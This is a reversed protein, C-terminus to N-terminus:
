QNDYVVAEAMDAPEGLASEILYSEATVPEISSTSHFNVFFTIAALVGSVVVAAALYLRKHVVSQRRKEKPAFPLIQIKSQIQPWIDFNDPIEPRYLDRLTEGTQSILSLDDRCDSCELLHSTVARHRPATVERDYFASLEDGILVCDEDLRDKLKSWIDLEVEQPLELGRSLLGNVQSLNQFKDLCPQCKAMHESVGEKAPVVLEGDLYASLDEQVCECVSPVKDAILSWIDPAGALSSSKAEMFFKSISGFESRAKQCEGCAELHDILDDQRSSELEGDLFASLDECYTCTQVAM